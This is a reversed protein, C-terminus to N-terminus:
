DDEKSPDRVPIWQLGGQHRPEWCCEAAIVHGDGDENPLIIPEFNFEVHKKEVLPHYCGKAGCKTKRQQKWARIKGLMGRIAKAPKPTPIPGTGAKVNFHKALMELLKLTKKHKKPDEDADPVGVEASSGWNPAQDAKPFYGESAIERTQASLNADPQPTRADAM